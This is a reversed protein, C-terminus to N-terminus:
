GDDCCVRDPRVYGAHRDCKKKGKCWWEGVGEVSDPVERREDEEYTELVENGFELVEEDGFCLRQDWGCEQVREARAVALEVVRDRWQTVEQGKALAERRSEIKSLSLQLRDLERQAQSKTPTVVETREAPELSDEAKVAGNSPSNHLVRVVVAERPQANRLAGELARPDGGWVKIRYAMHKIGCEDSCYKSFPRRAPKHCAESSDPRPHQLGAHCRTKYTTKLPINPHEAMAFDADFLLQIHIQPSTSAICVPCIFQDVLDVELDPM